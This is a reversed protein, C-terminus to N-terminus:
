ARDGARQTANAGADVPTGATSGAYPTIRYGTIASGGDDAPAVWDVNASKTDAQATVGTPAGPLGAGLPTVANSPSSVPGAGGPNIAQVTFTYSTGATLGTITRTTAPPTGTM